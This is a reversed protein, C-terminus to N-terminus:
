KGEKSVKRRYNEVEWNDIFDIQEPTMFNPGGFNESLYSIKMMDIFVEAVTQINKENEEVIVMCEDEIIVVKPFYGFQDKFKDIISSIQDGDGRGLFLYNSKCYVIIDPTFPKYIKLYQQETNIFHRILESTYARTELSKESFYENITKEKSSNMPIPEANLTNSKILEKLSREIGSYIEKIEELSDSGAFVGHNQLFIVKPTYGNSTEFANMEEQVKKFLIYGPDTYEIYIAEDGFIEKTLQRANKSCMLANVYTPHTHVIYSYSIIEHMSTEVSPRLHKPSIIAAAMDEKVEQERQTSDPSYSKESITKLLERSLCVFGDETIDSLSTGSAKVWIHDNDKYSTNGGGAIVYEMNKGYYHSINVLETIEKSSMKQFKFFPLDGHDALQIGPGGEKL